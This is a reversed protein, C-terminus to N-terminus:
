SLLLLMTYIPPTTQFAIPSVLLPGFSLFFCVVFKRFPHSQPFSLTFSTINYIVRGPFIIELELFRSTEEIMVLLAVVCGLWGYILVRERGFNSEMKVILGVFAWSQLVLRNLPIILTDYMVKRTQLSRSKQRFKPNLPNTLDHYM